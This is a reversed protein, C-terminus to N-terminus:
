TKSGNASFLVKTSIQLDAGFDEDENWLFRWGPRDAKVVECFLIKLAVSSERGQLKVCSELAGILLM